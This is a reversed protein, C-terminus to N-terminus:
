DMIGNVLTYKEMIGNIFVKVVLKVWELSDMTLTVMQIYGLVNEKDLIKNGIVKMSDDTKINWWVKEMEKVM